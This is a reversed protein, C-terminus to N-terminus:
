RPWEDKKVQTSKRTAVLELFKGEGPSATLDYMESICKDDTEFRDVIKYPKDFVGDMWDDQKGFFTFVKGSKDHQGESFSISNTFNDIWVAVYKKRLTDYGTIGLGKFPLEVVTGQIEIKTMARVDTRLFRGGFILESDMEGRSITPEGDGNMWIKMEVDWEGVYGKLKKHSESPTNFKKWQQEAREKDVEFEQSLVLGTFLATTIGMVFGCALQQFRM